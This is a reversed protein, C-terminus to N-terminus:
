AGIARLNAAGEGPEAAAQVAYKTQTPWVLKQITKRQAMAFINVEEPPFKFRGTLPVRLGGGDRRTLFCETLEFGNASYFDAYFTPNLNYFGHNGWNAPNEHIIYGDKRVMDAMNVIAQGINFCHEATGVDLVIDYYELPFSAVHPMEPMAVQGRTAEYLGRPAERGQLWLDRMPATCTEGTGSLCERIVSMDVESTGRPITRCANSANGAYAERPVGQLIETPVQQEAARMQQLHDKEYTGSYCVQGRIPHNLDCLIECGREKVIDYVDLACGMVKFFSHADPIDRKALGHRKCIAESDQRYTLKPFEDGMIKEVLEMPAIIDPYGMSAVRRGTKLIPGLVATQTVSLAM